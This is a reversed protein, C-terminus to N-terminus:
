RRGILRYGGEILEAIEKWDPRATLKLSVFGRHGIYPTKFFRPDELFLPQNVMEVKFALSSDGEEGHFVCFMRDKFRFTPHGFIWKETVGPFPAIIRRIRELQATERATM